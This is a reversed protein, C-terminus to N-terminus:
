PHKCILFLLGWQEAVNLRKGEIKTWLDLLAALTWILGSLGAVAQSVM